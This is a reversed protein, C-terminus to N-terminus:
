KVESELEALVKSAYAVDESTAHSNNKWRTWFEIFDKKLATTSEALISKLITEFNRMEAKVKQRSAEDLNSQDVIKEISGLTAISADVIGTLDVQVQELAQESAQAVGSSSEDSRAKMRTDLIKDVEQVEKQLQAEQETFKEISQINEQIDHHEYWGSGKMIETFLEQAEIHERLQRLFNIKSDQIAMLQQTDLEKFNRDSM